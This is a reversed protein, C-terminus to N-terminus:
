QTPDVVHGAFLALGTKDQIFFLFPRDFAVPIPDKVIALGDLVVATAAAAETGDEDVGIFAKQIVRSIAVPDVISIGSFDAYPGFAISMGLAQLSQTLPMQPTEIKFKPM